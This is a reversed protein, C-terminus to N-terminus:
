VRDGSDVQSHKSEAKSVTHNWINARPQTQSRPRASTSQKSYNNVVRLQSRAKPLPDIEHSASTFLNTGVTMDNCLHVQSHSGSLKSLGTRRVTPM